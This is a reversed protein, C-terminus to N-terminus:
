KVVEKGQSAVRMSAWRGPVQPFPRDDSRGGALPHRHEYRHQHEDHDREAEGRDRERAAAQHPQGLELQPPGPQRQAPDPDLHQDDRDDRAPERAHVLHEV